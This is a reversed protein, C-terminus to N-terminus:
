RRRACPTAPLPELPEPRREDDTTSPADRAVHTVSRRGRVAPLYGAVEPPDVPCPTQMLRVRVQALEARAPLVAIGTDRLLKALVRPVQQGEVLDWPLVPCVDAGGVRDLSGEPFDTAPAPPTAGKGVGLCAVPKEVFHGTQQLLAPALHVDPELSAPPGVCGGGDRVVDAPLAGLALGAPEGACM